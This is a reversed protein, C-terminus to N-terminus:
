DGADTAQLDLQELHHFAEDLIEYLPQDDQAVWRRFAVLIVSVGISAVLEPTMDRRPDVDMREGLAAAFIREVEAIKGLHHALLTSHKHTLRQRALFGARDNSDAGFYDSTLIAKRLAQLHPEEAPRQALLRQVQAAGEAAQTVLADEKSDFYNFFTRPSIGAVQAIAEVTLNEVGDDLALQLAAARIARRTERKKYERRGLLVEDHHTM